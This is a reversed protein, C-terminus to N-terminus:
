MPDHALVPLMLLPNLEIRADSRALLPSTSQRTIALSPASRRGADTRDLLALGLLQRTELM